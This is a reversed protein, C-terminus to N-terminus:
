FQSNGPGWYDNKGETLKDVIFMMENLEVKDMGMTDVKKTSEEIILGTTPDVDARLLANDNIWFAQNDETFLIKVKSSDLHEYSQTNKPRYDKINLLIPAFMQHTRSQSVALKVPKNTKNFKNISYYFLSAGVLAVFSGVLYEM